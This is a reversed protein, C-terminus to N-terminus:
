ESVYHLYKKFINKHTFFPSLQWVDADHVTRTNSIKFLPEVFSFTSWTWLNACDEPMTYDNSSPQLPTDRLFSGLWFTFSVDSPRAVDPGPWYDRLPYTGAIWVMFSVGCAQLVDLAVAAARVRTELLHRALDFLAALASTVYFLLLVYPPTM